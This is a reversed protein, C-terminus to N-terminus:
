PCLIELVDETLQGSHLEALVGFKEFIVKWPAWFYLLIELVDETLQGSHLEALVGFKEFIVKWPAWFYLCGAM